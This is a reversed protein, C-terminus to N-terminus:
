AADSQQAFRKRSTDVINRVHSGPKNVISRYVNVIDTAAVEKMFLDTSLIALCSENSLRAYPIHRKIFLIHLWIHMDYENIQEDTM